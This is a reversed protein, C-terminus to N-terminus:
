QPCLQVNNIKIILTNVLYYYMFSSLTNTRYIRYSLTFHHNVLQKQQIELMAFFSAHENIHKNRQRQTNNYTQTHTRTCAKKM